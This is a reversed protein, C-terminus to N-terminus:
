SVTFDDGGNDVFDGEAILGADAAVAARGNDAKGWQVYAVIDASSGFNNSRYLGFEGGDPSLNLDVVDLDVTAGPEIAPVSVAAYAPRNCTSWGAFDIAESGVNTITVTNNTFSVADIVISGAEPAVLADDAAAGDDAAEDDTAEGDDAAGDDAAGDEGDDAPADTSESTGADTGADDDEDGGCSAAVLLLSLLLALLRTPM